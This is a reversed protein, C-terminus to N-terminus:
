KNIHIQKQSQQTKIAAKRCNHHEPDENWHSRKDCLLPELHGAETTPGRPSLLQPGPARSCLSLLQTCPSLQEMVLIHSRGPGPILGIDGESVPLIRQWQAMLSAGQTHTNTAWDHGVRQSGMTYGPLSSQGHSEGPLFEPTPQWARRWPFGRLRLSQRWRFRWGNRVGSVSGPKQILKRPSSYSIVM